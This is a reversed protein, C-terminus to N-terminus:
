YLKWRYYYHEGQKYEDIDNYFTVVLPCHLCTKFHEVTLGSYILYIVTALYVPICNFKSLKSLSTFNKEYCAMKM